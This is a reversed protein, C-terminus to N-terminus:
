QGTRGSMGVPRWTVFQMVQAAVIAVAGAVRDVLAGTEDVMPEASNVTAGFPTPWGRLAHVTSRLSVLATGCAQWGAASVITGVPRGDLYPRPADRLAELHDIGNKVLGSLGGHYGPSSLIVGDAQSIAAVLETAPGAPRDPDYTQLRALFSGDFIRTEAGAEACRDLAARLLRESSSNPRTSGGLGVILPATM